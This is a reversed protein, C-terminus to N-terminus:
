IEAEDKPVKEEIDEDAEKELSFGLLMSVAMRDCFWLLIYELSGAVAHFDIALQVGNNREEKQDLYIVELALGHQICLVAAKHNEEASSAESTCLVAAKHNEFKYIPSGVRGSTINRHDFMRVSKNSSRAVGHSVVKILSGILEGPDYFFEVKKVRMSEDVGYFEVMEGTPAHGSTINRHDFMRVSKNSSGTLILNEDHPNWDVCHLDANRSKEVQFHTKFRSSSSFNLALMSKGFLESMCGRSQDFESHETRVTRRNASRKPLTPFQLRGTTKLNENFMAFIYADMYTQPRKPTGNKMVDNMFNKNYTTALTLTMFNGNGAFPWSSESVAIDVNTVGVKQMAWYFADVIADFMNSYGLNGDQVVSETITFQAYDLRVNAPDAAYAFYPYTNVM